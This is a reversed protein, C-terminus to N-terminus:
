AKIINLSLNLDAYTKGVLSNNDIYNGLLVPFTSKIFRNTM